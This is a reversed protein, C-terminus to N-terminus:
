SNKVKKYEVFNPKCWVGNGKWGFLGYRDNGVLFSGYVRATESSVQLFDYSIAQVHFYYRKTKDEDYHVYVAEKFDNPTEILEPAGHNIYVQPARNFRMGTIFGFYESKNLVNGGIYNELYNYALKGNERTFMPFGSFNNVLPASSISDDFFQYGVYVYRDDFLIRANLRTKPDIRAFTKFDRFQKLPIAKNWVSEANEEVALMNQSLINETGADCYVMYADEEDADKYIGIQRETIEYIRNIKRRQEDTLECSLANKLATLVKESIGTKIIMSGIYVSGNTSYTVYDDTHDWGYQLLDFYELMYRDAKGYVIRCFKESLARVDEYPDFMLKLTLWHYMENMDFKDDAGLVNFQDLTAEPSIGKVGIEVYWKLNNQVTKIIPRSYIDGSEASHWYNYVCINPTNQLWNLINNKCKLSEASTDTLFDFHESVVIPAIDVMLNKRVKIKPCPETYIYALAMFKTEPYVKCVRDIIRNVYNFYVTSKYNYEDPYVITGDDCVFPKKDLRIGDEEMMFYDSDPLGISIPLDRIDKKGELVFLIRDAILDAVEKNYYNIHSEYRGSKPFGKGDVMFYQPCSHLYAEIHFPHLESEYSFAQIGYREFDKYYSLKYNIKNKALFLMNASDIGSGLDGKGCHHSVRYQFPSKKVYNYKCIASECQAIYSCESGKKARTWIIEFNEELFDHIAFFLANKEHSFIFIKEDSYRVAFGDSSLLFEYDESFKERLFPIEEFTALVVANKINKLDDVSVQGITVKARSILEVAKAAENLATVVVASENVYLFDFLCKGDKIFNVPESM